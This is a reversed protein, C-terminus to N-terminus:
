RHFSKALAQPVTSTTYNKDIYTWFSNSAWTGHHQIHSQKVGSKFCATAGGRRFSHMSYLKSNIGLADLIINLSKQLFPITLPTSGVQTPLMFVPASSPAKIIKTMATYTKVPCHKHGKIQPIPIIQFKGHQLTKTWKLLIYMMNDQLFVDARATHRLPDFSRASHPALNSQRVFSFYATLFASKLVLGTTGQQDCVDCINYLMAPTIPLRQNPFHQFQIRIARIVMALQFNESPPQLGLMKHLFSIVSVYNAIAAPSKMTRSLFQAYM